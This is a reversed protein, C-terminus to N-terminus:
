ELREDNDYFIRNFKHVFADSMGGGICRIEITTNTSQRGLSGVSSSKHRSQLVPPTNDTDVTLRHRDIVMTEEDNVDDVNNNLPTSESLPFVVVCSARRRQQVDLRLLANSWVSGDVTPQQWQEDPGSSHRPTVSTAISAPPMGEDGDDDSHLVLYIYLRNSFM